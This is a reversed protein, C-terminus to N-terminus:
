TCRPFPLHDRLLATSEEETMSEWDAISPFLPAFAPVAAPTWVVMVGFKAEDFWERGPSITM